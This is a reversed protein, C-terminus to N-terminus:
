HTRRLIRPRPPVCTSESNLMLHSRSGSPKHRELRGVGVPRRRRHYGAGGIACLHNSRPDEPRPIEIGWHGRVWGLLTAAGAQDRPVSTIAYCVEYTEEAGVKVETEIRCVQAVGPWDLYGALMTTTELRRTEIRDGHADLTKSRDSEDAQLRRAYPPFPRSSPM